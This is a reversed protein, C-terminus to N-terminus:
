EGKTMNLLDYGIMELEIFIKEYDNNKYLCQKM